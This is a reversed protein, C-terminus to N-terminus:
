EARDISAGRDPKRKAAEYRDLGRAMAAAFWADTPAGAAPTPPAEPKPGAAPAVAAVAEAVQPAAAKEPHSVPRAYPLVRSASTPMPGSAVAPRAEAQRWYYALDRNAKGPDAPAAPKAAALVPARAAPAPDAAPGKALSAALAQLEPPLAVRATPAVVSAAPPSSAAPLQGELPQPTGASPAVSAAALSAAALNEPVTPEGQSPSVMALVKEGVDSGTAEAIIADGASLVLGVPGGLLAGGIVKAAPSLTDGTIARYITGVIPIHQLPNIASLFDGFSMEDNGNVVPPDPARGDPVANWWQVPEAAVNPVPSTASVSM